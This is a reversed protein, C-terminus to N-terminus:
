EHQVYRMNDYSSLFVLVQALRRGCKYECLHESIDELYKESILCYIKCIDEWNNGPNM